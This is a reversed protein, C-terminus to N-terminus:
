PKSLTIGSLNHSRDHVCFQGLQQTTAVGDNLGGHAPHSIRTQHSGGAIGPTKTKKSASDHCGIFDLLADEVDFCRGIRRKPDIEVHVHRVGLLNDIEANLM